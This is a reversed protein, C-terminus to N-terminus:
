LLNHSNQLSQCLTALASVWQADDNVCPILSLQKGGLAQWQEQARIGIEELTELCDAVFSPCAIALTRIGQAALEPLLTDTYPKIWPIKGLRSQFAVSYNAAPLNLNKALAETTAYCQARYCSAHQVSIAPCSGSCVTHCQSFRLQKEPLGHYSFVIHEHTALFPAIRASQAQIFGPYAYFDRIIRLHPHPTTQALTHLVKELSSGTAASSYQPYLPLVTLTECGSLDALASNLSPNGYRMGLAVCYDGGLAQQLAEKLRLSHVLLPSGENTWISQYARTTRRTRFPLIVAHLFLRRLLWPLEIVRADSLFERLYKRVAAPTPADPTGLNILLIGHTM